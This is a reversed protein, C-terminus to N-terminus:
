GFDGAEKAALYIGKTTKTSGNSSLKSRLLLLHRHHLELRQGQPEPEVGGVLLEDPVVELPLDRALNLGLDLDYRLDVDALALGPVEWIFRQDTRLIRLPEEERGLVALVRIAAPRVPRRLGPVPLCGPLVPDDLGLTLLLLLM